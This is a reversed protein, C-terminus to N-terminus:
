IGNLNVVMTDVCALLFVNIWDEILSSLFCPKSPSSRSQSYGPDLPLGGSSLCLNVVSHLTLALIKCQINLTFCLTLNGMIRSYVPVRLPMHPQPFLLQSVWISSRQQQTQQFLFCQHQNHFRLSPLTHAPKIEM